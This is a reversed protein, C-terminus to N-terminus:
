AIAMAAMAGMRCDIAHDRNLDDPAAPQRRPDPHPVDSRSAAVEITGRALALMALPARRSLLSGALLARKGM